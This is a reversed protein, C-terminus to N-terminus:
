ELNLTMAFSYCSYNFYSLIPCSLFLILLMIFILILHIKISLSLHMSKELPQIKTKIILAALQQRHRRLRAKVSILMQFTAMSLRRIGPLQDPHFMPMASQVNPFRAIQISQPFFKTFVKLIQFICVNASDSMTTSPAKQTTDEAVTSANSHLM